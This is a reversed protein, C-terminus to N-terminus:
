VITAGLTGTLNDMTIQIVVHGASDGATFLGSTAITGSGSKVTFTTAATTAVAHGFQDTVAASYQLSKGAEITQHHPTLRLQAVPTVTISVTRSVSLGDSSLVTCLLHYTGAKHFIATADKAANSDNESFTVAKAGSPAHTVSWTYTLASDDGTSSDNSLISLVSHTSAISANPMVSTITPAAPAAVETMTVDQGSSGADYSIKYYDGGFNAVAGQPLNHFTGVVAHGTLNSIVTLVTGVSPASAGGVPAFTLTSDDINVSSGSAILEGAGYSAYTEALTSGSGMSVNGTSYLNSSYIVDTSLQVTGGHDIIGNFHGYDGDMYAGSDLTIPTTVTGNQSGDGQVIETTGTYTENGGFSFIGAGTKTIGFAHGGDNIDGLQFDASAGVNITTNHTVVTTNNFLDDTGTAVTINGNLTLSFQGSIHYDSGELTLDGITVNSGLDITQANSGPGPAPFDVSQGSTPVTNAQWNGPTNWQFDGAGGTWVATSMLQRDELPEFFTRGPKSGNFIRRMGLGASKFSKNM